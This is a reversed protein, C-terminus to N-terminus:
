RSASPRITGTCDQPTTRCAAKKAAAVIEQIRSVDAPHDRIWARQAEEYAAVRGPLDATTIRRGLDAPGAANVMRDLMLTGLEARFHIPEWIWELTTRTDGATPVQETTFRSYGSFDWIPVPSEPPAAAEVTAVVDAKWSKYFPTMGVQRFLELQEAHSPIIFVIVDAGHGRALRVMEGIPAVATLPRRLWKIFQAAKTRDKDVFLALQGEKAIWRAFRGGTSHGLPTQYNELVDDQSLLTKVSDRVAQFSITAFILDQAWAVARDLRRPADDGTRLRAEPPEPAPVEASHDANFVVRTVLADEFSVGILVLGPRTTALAHRLFNLQVNPNSGALALNFVPRHQAAWAPSEPDLGVAITSSGLLLTAPNASEVMYTKSLQERDLAATKQATLGPVGPVGLIGYPDVGVTLGLILAGFVTMFLLWTRLFGTM